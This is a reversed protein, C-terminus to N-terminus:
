EAVAACEDILRLMEKHDKQLATQRPLVGKQNAITSDAGSKLLYDAADRANNEVAHHLPTFGSRNTQNIDAGQQLLLQIVEPHNHWAAWNLPRRGTRSRRTDLANVDAGLKIAEAVAAVRGARCAEWLMVQAKAPKGAPVDLMPPTLVVRGPLTVAQGRLFRALTKKTPEWSAFLNYLAGHNGHVVEILHGNKLTAVVERANEIPTSTDWTGHVLLVPVESEVASRFSDGLDRIGWVSNMGRYAMNLSPLLHRAPAEALAQRRAASIGSALDMAYKMANPSGMRQLSLAGYAAATYDGEYMALITEPWRNPRGRSAAGRTGAAQILEPTIWVEYSQQKHVITTQVPQDKVRQLTAAYAALLGGEPLRDRYVQQQEIHAAIRQYTALAQEPHDYTHDPGEVGYFLARAVVAPHKRLLHLGLHSGYSGGVLIMQEYGLAERLANVDAANEDTNYSSLDVGQSEWHRRCGHGISQFLGTLAAEDAPQSLPIGWEGKPCRLNPEAAGTGRQDFVVVDGLERFFQIMAFTEEEAFQRIGSSGPGGALMFIPPGPDATIARMRYFPISIRRGAPRKRSEPLILRGADLTVQEGTESVVAKPAFSLAGPDVPRGGWVPSGLFVLVLSQWFSFIIM